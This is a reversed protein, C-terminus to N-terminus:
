AALRVLTNGDKLCEALGPGFISAQVVMATPNVKAAAQSIIGLINAASSLWFVLANSARGCFLYVFASCNDKAKRPLM